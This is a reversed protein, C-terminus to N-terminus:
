AGRSRRSYPLFFMYLGSLMSLFLPLMPLYYLWPVAYGLSFAIANVVTLAVLTIGFWPHSQRILTSMTM